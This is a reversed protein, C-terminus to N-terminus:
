FEKIIQSLLNHAYPLNQINEDGQCCIQVLKQLVEPNTLMTFCHDNEVFDLLITNANLTKELDDKNKSSLADLLGMVIQNGKKALIDKMKQQQASLMGENEADDEHNEADSGDSNYMAMREGKIIRTTEPKIQIQLLDIVWLALSHHRIHKLLGDFIVGERKLLLYELTTQKEKTLLSGFIKYFYGCLVPLM